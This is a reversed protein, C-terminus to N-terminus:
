DSSARRAAARLEGRGGRAPRSLAQLRAGARAARGREDSTRASACGAACGRGCHGGAAALVIVVLAAGYFWQKLGPVGFVAGIDTMAEGLTTLVFAGLVPGFLTGVGGIVPATIIEVSSATTFVTDPYLNNDYFAMVVGAVATLAASLTVAALKYRFM